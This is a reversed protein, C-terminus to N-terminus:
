VLTQSSASTARSIRVKLSFPKEVALFLAAGVCFALFFVPAITAWFILNPRDLSTLVHALLRVCAVTVFGHILYFSYSINGLVRLWDASLMRSLSNRSHISASCLAFYGAALLVAAAWESLSFVAFIVFIIVIGGAAIL